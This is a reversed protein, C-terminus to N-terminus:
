VPLTFYFISGKGEQSNLWIRGGYHNVIKKCIALGMGTGPYKEKTHLRQFMMFIREFYQSEVGIGNDEVSFSWEGEKKEASIHISPSLDSRYKVANGILNQFLQFIQTRDTEITPLQGAIININGESIALKLNELVQGLVENLNVPKVHNNVRGIRSFSLIDEILMQMRKVGERAFEIFDNADNDLKDKYRLGLLQTYNSVMRLPEQLDHSAIYAFQELDENARILENEIKQRQAIEEILKQNALSLEATREEVKQELQNNVRQLEEHAFKLAEEAKIREDVQIQLQTPSPLAIAKPILPLLFIGTFISVLATFARLFGDLWYYPYWITIIDMIHTTGCSVIFIGFLVFIMKFVLDTRKRVFYILVFPILFYALAIISNSVVQLWLLSPLWQYCHGHPMFNYVINFSNEMHNL